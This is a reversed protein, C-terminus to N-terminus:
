KKIKRDNVLNALSWLSSRLMKKHTKDFDIQPVLNDIWTLLQNLKRCDSHYSSPRGPGTHGVVPRGCIGCFVTNKIEYTM